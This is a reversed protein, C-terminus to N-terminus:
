SGIKYNVKDVQKQRYSILDFETWSAERQGSVTM